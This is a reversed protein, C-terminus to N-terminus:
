VKVQAIYKVHFDINKSSRAYMFADSDNDGLDTYIYEKVENEETITFIFYTILFCIYRLVKFHKIVSYLLLKSESKSSSNRNNIIIAFTPLM